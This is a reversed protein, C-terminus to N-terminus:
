HRPTDTTCSTPHRVAHHGNSISQARTGRLSCRGRRMGDAVGLNQFLQCADRPHSGIHQQICVKLLRATLAFATRLQHHMANNIRTSGMSHIVTSGNCLLLRRGIYIQTTDYLLSFARPQTAKSWLREAGRAGKGRVAGHEVDGRQESCHETSLDLSDLSRTLSGTMLVRTSQLNCQVPQAHLVRKLCIEVARTGGCGKCSELCANHCAKVARALLHMWCSM